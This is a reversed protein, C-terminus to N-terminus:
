RVQHVSKFDHIHNDACAPPNLVVYLNCHRCWFMQKSRDRCLEECDPCILLTTEKKVSPPWYQKLLGDPTYGQRCLMCQIKMDKIVCDFLDLRGFDLWPIPAGVTQVMLGTYTQLFALCEGRLVALLGTAQRILEGQKAVYEKKRKELEETQPM